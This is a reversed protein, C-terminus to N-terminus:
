NNKLVNISKLKLKKKLVDLGLTRMDKELKKM